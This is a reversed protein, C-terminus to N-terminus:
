GGAVGASREVGAELDSCDRRSEWTALAETAAEGEVLSPIGSTIHVPVWEAADVRRGTLTLRLVGSEASQGRASGFVFNGLGYDVYAGDQMGGALNLHAHSGVIVDAGAEILADALDTQDAGPCDVYEHGWHLYVVLTDTRSREAAVAELLRSPDEAVALGAHDDTASWPDLLHADTVRSAGFVSIRQGRITVRFPEYAETVDRGAGVLPLGDALDEAATLTDELGVPGFDLGHNNALTVVDVGGARLATFASAPARFTFAKIAATGRETVATELNVMTVDADLAPLVDALIANPDDDLVTRVNAEFNVDGGFAITVPRGSGLGPAAPPAAGSRPLAPGTAPRGPAPVVAAVAAGDGPIEAAQCGGALVILACGAALRKM